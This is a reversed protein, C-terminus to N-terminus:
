KITSFYAYEKKRRAPKITSFSAIEDQLSKFYFPDIEQKIIDEYKQWLKKQFKGSKNYDSIIKKNFRERRNGIHNDLTSDDPKPTEFLSIQPCSSDYYDFGILYDYEATTFAIEKCLVKLQKDTMIDAYENFITLFHRAEIKTIRELIPFVNDDLTDLMLQIDTSSKKDSLNNQIYSLYGICEIFLDYIQSTTHTQFLHHYIMIVTEQVNLPKDTKYKKLMEINETEVYIKFQEFDLLINKFISIIIERNM